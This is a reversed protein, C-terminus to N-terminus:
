CSLPWPAKKLVRLAFSATPLRLWQDYQWATPIDHWRFAHFVRTLKDRLLRLIEQNADDYPYLRHIRGALQAVTMDALQLRAVEALAADLDPTTVALIAEKIQAYTKTAHHFFRSGLKDVILAPIAVLLFAKKINDDTVQRALYIAKVTEFWIRPAADNFDPLLVNPGAVLDPM